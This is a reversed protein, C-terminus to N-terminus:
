IQVQQKHRAEFAPWSTSMTLTVGLMQQLQSPMHTSGLSSEQHWYQSLAATSCSNPPPQLSKLDYSVTPLLQPLQHVPSPTAHKM